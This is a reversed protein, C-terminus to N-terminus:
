FRVVSATAAIRARELDHQAEGISLQYARGAALLANYYRETSTRVTSEKGETGPGVGEVM